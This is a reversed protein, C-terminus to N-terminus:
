INIVQRLYILFYRYHNIIRKYINEKRTLASFLEDLSQKENKSLVSM